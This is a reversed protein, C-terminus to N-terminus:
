RGGVPSDALKATALKATALKAGEDERKKRWRDVLLSASEAANELASEAAGTGDAQACIVRIMGAQAALAGIRSLWSGLNPDGFLKVYVLPATVVDISPPSAPQRPLDLLCLAVGRAKLGEIVRSSYWGANFFAVALPLGALDRLVRNLHLRAAASYPLDPPFELLFASVGAKERTRDTGALRHCSAVAAEYAAEPTTKPAAEKPAAEKPAAGSVAKRGTEPSGSIAGGWAPRVFEEGLRLCLDGPALIGGEKQLDAWLKFPLEITGLGSRSSALGMAAMDMAATEGGDGDGDGRDGGRIAVGFRVDAPTEGRKEEM